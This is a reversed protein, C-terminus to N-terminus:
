AWGADAVQAAPGGQGLGLGQGLERTFLSAVTSTEFVDWTRLVLAMTRTAPM